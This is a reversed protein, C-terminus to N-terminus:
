ADAISGVGKTPGVAAALRDFTVIEASMVKIKKVETNTM